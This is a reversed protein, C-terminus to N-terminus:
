TFAFWAIVILAVLFLIVVPFFMGIALGGTRAAAKPAERDSHPNPRVDGERETASTAIENKQAPDAPRVGERSLTPETTRPATEEPVFDRKDRPDSM